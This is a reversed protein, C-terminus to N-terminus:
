LEHKEHRVTIVDPSHSTATLTKPSSLIAIEYPRAAQEESVPGDAVVGHADLGHGARPCASHVSIHVAANGLAAANKDLRRLESQRVRGVPDLRLLAAEPGPHGVQQAVGLRPRLLGFFACAISPSCRLSLRPLLSM